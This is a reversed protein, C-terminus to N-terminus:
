VLSPPLLNAFMVLHYYSFSHVKLTFTIGVEIEGCYSQDAGVVRYKQPHLESKGNEAGLALLDEVYIRGGVWGCM